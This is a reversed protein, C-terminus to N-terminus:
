SVLNAQTPKPLSQSQSGSKLGKYKGQYIELAQIPELSNQYVKIKAESCTPKSIKPM